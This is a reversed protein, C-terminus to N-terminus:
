KDVGLKKLAEVLKWFVTRGPEVLDPELYKKAKKAAEILPLIDEHKVYDGNHIEPMEMSSLPEYRKM